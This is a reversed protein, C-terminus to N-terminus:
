NGLVFFQFVGIGIRLKPWFYFFWVSNFIKSQVMGMIFLSGNCICAIHPRELIGGVIV